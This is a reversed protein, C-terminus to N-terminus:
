DKRVIFGLVIIAIIVSFVFTIEFYYCNINIFIANVHVLLVLLLGCKFYIHDYFISTASDGLSGCFSKEM